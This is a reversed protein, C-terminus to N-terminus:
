RMLSLQAAQAAAAAKARAMADANRDQAVQALNRYMGILEAEKASIMDTSAAEIESLGGAQDNVGGPAYHGSYGGGRGAGMMSSVGAPMSHGTPSMMQHGGGGGAGVAMQHGGGGGAGVGIQHGGGGGAGVGIQHGGGGGAGRGKAVSPQNMPQLLISSLGGRVPAQPPSPSVAGPGPQEQWAPIPHTPQPPGPPAARNLAALHYREVTRPPWTFSNRIADLVYITLVHIMLVHIMLVHIMLVHIMLVHIMLVHIM